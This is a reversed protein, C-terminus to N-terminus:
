ACAEKVKPRLKETGETRVLWRFPRREHVGSFIEDFNREPHRSEARGMVCIPSRRYGGLLLPM